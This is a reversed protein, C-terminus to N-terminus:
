AVRSPSLISQPSRQATSGLLESNWLSERGQLIATEAIRSPKLRPDLWTVPWPTVRLAPNVWAQGARATPPSSLHTHPDRRIRVRSVAGYPPSLIHGQPTRPSRLRPAGMSPPLDPGADHEHLMARNDGAGRLCRWGDWSPALSPSTNRPENWLHCLGGFCVTVSLQLKHTHYPSM